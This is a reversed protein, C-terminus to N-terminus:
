RKPRVRGGEIVLGLVNSEIRVPTIQERSLVDAPLMTSDYVLRVEMPGMEAVDGEIWDHLPMDKTWTQGGRLKVIGAPIVAPIGSLLRAPPAEKPRRISVFMTTGAPFAPKVIVPRKSRNTLRVRFRARDLTGARVLAIELTLPSQTERMGPDEALPGPPLVLLALTVLHVAALDTLPL